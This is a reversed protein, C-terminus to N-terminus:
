GREMRRRMAEAVCFRNGACDPCLTAGEVVEPKKTARRCVLCRDKSQDQNAPPLDIDEGFSM